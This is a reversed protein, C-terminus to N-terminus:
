DILADFHLSNTDRFFRTKSPRVPKSRCLPADCTDTTYDESM